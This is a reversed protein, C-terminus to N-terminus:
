KSLHVLVYNAINQADAENIEIFEIGLKYHIGKYEKRGMEKVWMVRGKALIPLKYHPLFIKLYLITGEALKDDIVACIGNASINITVGIDYQGNLEKSYNVIVSNLRPFKRRDEM